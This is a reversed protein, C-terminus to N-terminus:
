LVSALLITSFILFSIAGLVDVHVLKGARLM